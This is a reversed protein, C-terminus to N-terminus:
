IRPFYFGMDAFRDLIQQCRGLQSSYYGPDSQFVMLATPLTFCASAPGYLKMDPQLLYAMSDCIMNALTAVPKESTPLSLTRLSAQHTDRRATFVAEDLRSLYNKAIIEFAWCHNLSNATMINPFWLVDAHSSSANSLNRKSWFVPSPVESQLMLEWERFSELIKRYDNRLREVAVIDSLGELDMMDDYRELLTPLASAKNLLLQM